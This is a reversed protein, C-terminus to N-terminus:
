HAIFLWTKKIEPAYECFTKLISTNDYNKIIEDLLNKFEQDTQKRSKEINFAIGKFGEYKIYKYDSYVLDNILNYFKYLKRKKNKQKQKLM